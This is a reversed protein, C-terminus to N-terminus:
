RLYKLCGRKIEAYANHQHISEMSECKVLAYDYIIENDINEMCTRVVDEVFRPNDYSYETIFKEDERKLVPYTKSSFCNASIQLLTDHDIQEDVEYYLICRQNHAGYESIEKSCPCLTMGEIEVGSVIERDDFEGNYCCELSYNYHFLGFSNSVPSLRPIFIPCSLYIYSKNSDLKECIDKLIEPIRNPEFWDDNGNIIELFRSLHSGRKNSDLEAYASLSAITNFDPGDRMQISFPFSVNKVGVKNIKINREDHENQVDKLM